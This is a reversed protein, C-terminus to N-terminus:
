TLTTHRQSLGLATFVQAAWVWVACSLAAGYPSHGHAFGVVYDEVDILAAGSDGPAIVNDTYVWHMRWGIGAYIGPDVGTVRAEQRGSQAGDFRHGTHQAPSLQRPGRHGHTPLLRVGDPVPIVCSDTAEDWATVASYEGHMLCGAPEDRVVHYATTAVIKGASTAAIVGVTGKLKGALDDVGLASLPAGTLVVEPQRVIVVAVEVSFFELVTEWLLDPEVPYGADTLARAATRVAQSSYVPTGPHVWLAGATHPLPRGLRDLIRGISTSWVVPEGRHGPDLILLDYRRPFGNGASDHAVVAQRAHAGPLPFDSPLAPALTELTPSCVAWAATFGVSAAQGRDAIIRELRTYSPGLWWQQEPRGAHGVLRDLFEVM